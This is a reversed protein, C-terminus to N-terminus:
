NAGRPGVGGASAAKLAFVRRVIEDLAVTVRRHREVLDDLELLAQRIAPEAPLSACAGNVAAEFSIREDVLLTPQDSGTGCM